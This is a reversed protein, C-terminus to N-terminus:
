TGDEAVADDGDADGPAVGSERVAADDAAPEAAAALERRLFGAIASRAASSVALMSNHDGRPIVVPPVAAAAAIARGHHVPVIEDDAGHVVLMPVGADALREAAEEPALGRRVLLGVAGRLVSGARPGSAVADAAIRPWDAFASVVAIAAVDEPRRSAVALGLAGGLSHGVIGVRDPDVEPRSRLYGLAADLDAELGARRRARGGSEGYGRYDPMLVHVGAGPLFDAFGLHDPLAGANGHAFVVAPAPGSTADPADAPIWWAVIRTGDGSRLEVREAGPISAPAPTPTRRPVFFLSEMCGTGALVVFLAALLGPLRLWALGRPM